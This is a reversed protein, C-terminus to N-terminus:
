PVTLVSANVENPENKKYKENSIAQISSSSVLQGHRLEEFEVFEKDSIKLYNQLVTM